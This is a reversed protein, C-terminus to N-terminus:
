HASCLASSYSKSRRDPLLGCGWTEVSVMTGMEALIAGVTTAAADIGGSGLPAGARMFDIM